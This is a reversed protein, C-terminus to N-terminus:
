GSPRRGPPEPLFPKLALLVAVVWRAMEAADATNPVGETATGDPLTGTFGLADANEPAGQELWRAAIKQFSERSALATRQHRDQGKAIWNDSRFVYEHGLKLWESPRVPVHFFARTTRQRLIHEPSGDYFLPPDYVPRASRPIRSLLPRNGGYHDSVLNANRAFISHHFLADEPLERYNTRFWDTPRGLTGNPDPELTELSSKVWAASHEGPELAELAETLLPPPLTPPKAKKLSYLYMESMWALAIDSLGRDAYGGGVNAHAGRFWLEYHVTARPDIPQPRVLAFTARSEDIAMAHFSREVNAPITAVQFQKWRNRLLWFPVGFSAVTDWLGLFRIRPQAVFGQGKRPHRLTWGLGRHRWPLWARGDAPDRLGHTALLNTFHVALAAGRSFGIIDIETDPNQRDFYRKCLEEYMVRIRHKGGLGFAGGLIKGPLGARTGVGQVYAANGCDRFEGQPGDRKLCYFERFRHVNTEVTDRRAASDAGYRGGQASAIVDKRDRLNWTGDFAYLAL